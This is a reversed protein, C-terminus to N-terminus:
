LKSFYKRLQEESFVEPEQPMPENMLSPKDVSRVSPPSTNQCIQLL